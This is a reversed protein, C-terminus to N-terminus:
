ENNNNDSENKNKKKRLYILGALALISIILEINEDVFEEIKDEINIVELNSNNNSM